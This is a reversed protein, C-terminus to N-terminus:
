RPGDLASSPFWSRWRWPLSIEVESVTINWKAAKVADTRDGGYGTVSDERMAIVTVFASVLDGTIITAQKSNM